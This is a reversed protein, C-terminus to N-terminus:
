VRHNLFLGLHKLHWLLVGGFSRYNKFVIRRVKTPLIALPSLFITVVLNLITGGLVSMLLLWRNVIGPCHKDTFRYLSTLSQERCMIYIRENSSGGIHTVVAKPNVYVEFGADLFRKAWDSDELFFPLNEDFPGVKTTASMRAVIATSALAKVPMSYGYPSSKDLGKGKYPTTFTAEVFARWIKTVLFNYEKFWHIPSQFYKFYSTSDKGAQNVIRASVLGAKTNEQLFKVLESIAKPEFITDADARVFYDFNSALALLENNSRAVGLNADHCLLKVSPFEDRVLRSTDDTSADDVVAIQLNVADDLQSALISALCDRLYREGNFVPIGILIKTM